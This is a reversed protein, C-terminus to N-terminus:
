EIRRLSKLALNWVGLYYAIRESDDGDNDWTRLQFNYTPDDITAKASANDSWKLNLSNRKKEWFRLKDLGKKSLSFIRKSEHGPHGGVSKNATRSFIPPRAEFSSVTFSLTPDSFSIRDKAPSFNASLEYRLGPWPRSINILGSATSLYDGGGAENNGTWEYRPLFDKVWDVLFAKKVQLYEDIGEAPPWAQLDEEYKFSFSGWSEKLVMTINLLDPRKSPEEGFFSPFQMPTVKYILMGAPRGFDESLDEQGLDESGESLFDKTLGILQFQRDLWEDSNGSGGAQDSVTISARPSEEGLHFKVRSYSMSWSVPIDLAMRGVFMTKIDETVTLAEPLSPEPSYRLLGILLVAIIFAIVGGCKKFKEM